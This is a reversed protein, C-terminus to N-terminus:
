ASPASSKQGPGRVSTTPGQAGAVWALYTRANAIVEDPSLGPRHALHLCELRIKPDHQPSQVPTASKADSAPM